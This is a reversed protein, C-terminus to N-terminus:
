ARARNELYHISFLADDDVWADIAAWGAKGALAQFEEVTYKHSNETHITEGASFAFATGGIHLTQATRSVLHMEVRGMEANYPAIHDFAALDFDAGLERNMRHLLNLNFEATVGKADNYAAHLIKKDKKLDVGILFGAGPGLTEAARQLFEVAPDPDFNGITSGPFLGLLRATAIMDPLGVPRTFDACIPVVKVNRYDDAVERASALLHERSIDIPAYAAPSELHDLLIRVKKNSGSGFEVLTLDPGARAALAPACDGLLKLETRTPYYEDLACIHDFLKSGREDYFYKSPLRKQPESLGQLVDALFADTETGTDVFQAVSGLNM